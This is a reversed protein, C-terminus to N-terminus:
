MEMREGVAVLRLLRQGGRHGSGANCRWEKMCKWTDVQKKGTPNANRRM